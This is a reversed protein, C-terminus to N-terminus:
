DAAHLVSVFREADAVGVSVVLKANPATDLRWTGEREIPGHDARRSEVGGDPHAVVEVVRLTLAGPVGLLARGRDLAPDDVRWVVGRGTAARVIEVFAGSGSRTTAVRRLERETLKADVAARLEAVAPDADRRAALESLIGRARELHGQQILLEAMTRTAIPERPADDRTPAPAPTEERRDLASKAMSVVRGFLARATGIARKAPPPETAGHPDAKPPWTPGVVDRAPPPATVATAEAARIAEILAGRDLGDFAIGRKEAEARLAEDSLHPLLSLDM